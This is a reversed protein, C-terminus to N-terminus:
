RVRLAAGISDAILRVLDKGHRDRVSLFVGSEDARFQVVERGRDDRVFFRAGGSDARLDFTGRERSGKGPDLDYSGQARVTGDAARQLRADLRRIDTHLWEEVDAEPLYVARTLSGPEFTIEGFRVYGTHSLMGPDVCQFSGGDALRRADDTVLDCRTLRDLLGPDDLRVTVRVRGIEAQNRRDVELREIRGLVRGDLRVPLNALKTPIQGGVSALVSRFHRTGRRAMAMATMGLGFILVAGLVIRLWYRNM